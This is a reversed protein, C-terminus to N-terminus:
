PKPEPWSPNAPPPSPEEETGMVDIYTVLKWIQEENIKTGWSPMGHARGQAISSFIAADSSGYMWTEDRLSPGMGGGGHGGHCGSCNFWVFLKRGEVMAVRSDAFPSSLTDAPSDPGPPPGIPHDIAPRAGSSAGRDYEDTCAGVYLLSLLILFTWWNRM